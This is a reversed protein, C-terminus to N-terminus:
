CRNQISLGGSNPRTGEEILAARASMIGNPALNAEFASCDIWDKLLEEQGWIDPIWVRGAVEIRHRKLREGGCDNQLADFECSKEEKVNMDDDGPLCHLATEEEDNSHLTNSSLCKSDNEDKDDSAHEDYAKFSSSTTEIYNVNSQHHAQNPQLPLSSSDQQCHNMNTPNEKM